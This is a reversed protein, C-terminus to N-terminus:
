GALTPPRVRRARGISSRRPPGAPIARSAERVTVVLGRYAMEDAWGWPIGFRERVASPLGGITTLYVVPATALDPIATLWAPLSPFGRIRRGLAIDVARRAAPTMELVDACVRRFEATYTARTAPVARASVGYRRYWEVSEAYMRDREGETLGGPSFRRAALEIARYITVHAWWYTGPDLAHYRRGQEDVGTIGRHVDRISRGMAEPDDAYVTALIPGWSRRIRAWPETFFASHQAVGAGLGPHMLQLVGHSLGTFGVRWDGAWRELYM